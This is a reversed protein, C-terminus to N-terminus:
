YSSGGLLLARLDKVMKFVFHHNQEVLVCKLSLLSIIAFLCSFPSATDERLQFSPCKFLLSQPKKLFLALLVHFAFIALKIVPNLLMLSSCNLVM